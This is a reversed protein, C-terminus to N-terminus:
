DAKEFRYTGTPRAPGTTVQFKIWENPRAEVIEYNADIRRGGPGKMGQKFAAGVGLPKGPIRTVDMVSDRWRPGNEGDLIFNYVVDAPRNIVISSEAHSM